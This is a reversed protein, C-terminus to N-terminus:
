SPTPATHHGAHAPDRRQLWPSILVELGYGAWLCAIPVLLLFYRQWAITVSLLGAATALTWVALLGLSRREAPAAPATRVLLRRCGTVLGVLSLALILTGSPLTAAPTAARWGRNLPSQQYAQEAALTEAAYNPVDWFALPAWFTHYLM